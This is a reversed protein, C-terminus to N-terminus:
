QNAAQKVTSTNEAKIDGCLARYVTPLSCKMKKQLARIKGTDIIKKQKPQAAGKHRFVTAAEVKGEQAPIGEPWHYPIYGGHARDCRAENAASVLASMSLLICSVDIADLQERNEQMWDQVWKYTEGVTKRIEEM